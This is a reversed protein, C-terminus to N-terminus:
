AVELWEDKFTEVVQKAGPGDGEFKVESEGPEEGPGVLVGLQGHRELEENKVRVASYVQAQIM